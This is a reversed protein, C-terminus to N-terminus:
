VLHGLGKGKPLQYYSLDNLDSAYPVGSLLM